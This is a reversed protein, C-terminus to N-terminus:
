NKITKGFAWKLFLPFARAWTQLDHKGDKLELYYIDRNKEYGKKVLEGIVAQTDDISDIIGNKNGNDITYLDINNM